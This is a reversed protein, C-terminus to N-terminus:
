KKEKVEVKADEIWKKGDKEVVKGTVKVDKEGNCVHYTEKKGTDKLYYTVSKDGDKVVLANGCEETEKLKCKSCQLKGELTTTKDEAYASAVFTAAAVAALLGLLKRIM